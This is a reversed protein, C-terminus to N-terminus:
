VLINNATAFAPTKVANQQFTESVDNNKQECSRRKTVQDCQIYASYQSNLM